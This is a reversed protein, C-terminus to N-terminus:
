QVGCIKGLEHQIWIPAQTLVVNLKEFSSQQDETWRFPVDKRLMKTLPAAILSFGEVFMHYYEALDLFDAFLVHGLFM